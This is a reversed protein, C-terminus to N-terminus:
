RPGDKQKVLQSLTDKLQKIDNGLQEDRAWLEDIKPQTAVAVQQAVSTKIRGEIALVYAKIDKAFDEGKSRFVEPCWKRLAAITIKCHERDGGGRAEVRIMIQQGHKKEKAILLRYLPRGRSGSM